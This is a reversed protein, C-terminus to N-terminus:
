SSWATARRMAARRDDSIAAVVREAMAPYTEGDDWGTGGAVWRAHGDPFRAAAEDSTLGVWSGVDVERLGPDLQM